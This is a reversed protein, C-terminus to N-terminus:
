QQRRQGVQPIEDAAGLVLSQGDKRALVVDSAHDGANSNEQYSQREDRSADLAACSFVAQRDRSYSIMTRLTPRRLSRLPSSLSREMSTLNALVRDSETCTPSGSAVM